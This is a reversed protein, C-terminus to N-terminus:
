FRRAIALGLIWNQYGDIKADFSLSPTLKWQERIPVVYELGLTLLGLNKERELEIGGGFSLWLRKYVNYEGVLAVAIPYNRSIIKGNEEIKFSQLFVDVHIGLAFRETLEFDYLIAWTPVWFVSQQGEIEAETLVTAHSIMIGVSHRAEKEKEQGKAIFATLFLALVCAAKNM